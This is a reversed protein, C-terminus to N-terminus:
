STAASKRLARGRINQMTRIVLWRSLKTSISELTHIVANMLTHPFYGTTTEMIGVTKMASEVFTKPSPAMWTTNRMKSMKTSVYGPCVCQIILGDKQYETALDASFKQVYAKTASYVTLMPNPILAAASSINIVVGSKREVMGPMVIRCMNTVSFINCCILNKIFEDQNPIDLFYEPYSYSMGVNNVLVGIELTNLQKDIDHYITDEKTFDVAITKVEVNYKEKIEEAVTDLKAQTRSILVVNFGMKALHEAYAKGIGDTSGTIVSWKGLSKWEVKQLHLAPAILTDYLFNFVMSFFRYGVIVTCVIGIKHLFTSM